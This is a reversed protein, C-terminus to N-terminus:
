KRILPIYKAYEANVIDVFAKCSLTAGTIGDIENNGKMEGAKTLVLGVDAAKNKYIALYEKDGIRSGLGPTEEQQLVKMGKISKLDPLLAMIGTIGGWIGPGSIEFSVNGDQDTYFDKGKETSVTISKDFTTEITEKTCPIERANLVSMKLKITQNLEILPATKFDIVLLATTLISGLILVFAIMSIKDKM